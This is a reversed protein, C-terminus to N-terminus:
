QILGEDGFITWAGGSTPNENALTYFTAPDNQNNYETSIYTATLAGFYWRAESMFGTLRRTSNRRGGLAPAYQGGTSWSTPNGSDTADLVGNLYVSYVGTNSLTYAVHYWTSTALITAGELQAAGNTQIELKSNTSSGFM